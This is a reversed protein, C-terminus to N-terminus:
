KMSVESVGANVYEPPCEKERFFVGPFIRCALPRRPYIICRSKGGAVELFIRKKDIMKMRRYGFEEASEVFYDEIFGEKKIAGIDADTLKPSLRCHVATGATCATSIRTFGMM